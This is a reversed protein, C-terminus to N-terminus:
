LVLGLAVCNILFAAMVLYSRRQNWRGWGARPHRDAFDAPLNHPDLTQVWRNVPVNKILSVLVGALTLLGALVVLVAGALGPLLPALILDGVITVIMCIPMFPDYRTSFFRHLEVYEPDPLSRMLPWGGLQGWALVGAAFGNCLLVVPFVLGM